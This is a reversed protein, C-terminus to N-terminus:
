DGIRTRVGLTSQFKAVKTAKARAKSTAGPTLGSREERDGSRPGMPADNAGARPSM